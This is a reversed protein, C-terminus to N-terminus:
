DSAKVDTTQAAKAPDAEWNPRAEPVVPKSNEAPTTPAPAVPQGAPPFARGAEAAVARVEKDLLDVREGLRPGGKEVEVLLQGFQYEIRAVEVPGRLKLAAPELRPEWRDHYVNEAKVRAADGQGDKALREVEHLGEAVLRAEDEWGHVEPAVVVAEKEACALLWWM